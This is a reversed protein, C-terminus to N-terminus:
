KPECQGIFGNGGAPYTITVKVTVITKLVVGIDIDTFTWSQTGGNPNVNVKTICECPIPNNTCDKKNHEGNAVGRVALRVKSVVEWDSTGWRPKKLVEVQINDDTLQPVTADYCDPPKCKQANEGEALPESGGEQAVIPGGIIGIALGLCCTALIYGWIKLSRMSM